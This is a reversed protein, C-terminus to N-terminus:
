SNPSQLKLQERLRVIEAAQDAAVKLAATKETDARQREYEAIARNREAKHRLRTLDLHSTFPTGDPHYITLGNADIEFRIGLAPSVGGNMNSIKELRDGRRIWGQLDNTEPDFLYYEDVGHKEFFIFKREMEATTNNPSLIEFTVKPAIGAEEWQKYSGRYGKPRGFVAMTDPAACTKKEGKMPYWLLDGAIFVDPDDAFQTELNEKILM